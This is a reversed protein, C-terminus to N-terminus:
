FNYYPNQVLVKNRELEDKHIPLYWSLPNTLKTQLIRKQTSPVNRVMINILETKRKYNNRRGMRMLDFWRKGEFALERAREELIADEFGTATYTLGSPPALLSRKKRVEMLATLAEDYRGLQSLAEAKMLFIDSYRYLIWNASRLIVNPRATQNDGVLGVYKWIIYDDESEMKISKGLGRDLDRKDEDESDFLEIAYDSPDYNYSNYNTLDYTGNTQQLGDDFQFEFIGELSNGPYYITFWENGPVIRYKNTAEINQCYTICSEYDFRWLSIDALLADIAPKTARGKNEAISLYGDVTAWKRAEILDATIQDLVEDETAKKVYVNTADTLTPTIILPVEKFIRVLYFYSLSRLFYAESMYGYLIYDTFTKDKDQVSPAFHLVENCYNIVKYFDAWKCMGNDPYISGEMIRREDASQNNDGLVLDGRIEGYKFLNEDMGAFQDYAGMIVAEVDEKTKWFEERILGQPPELTLWDSCSVQLIMVLFILSLKLYIKMTWIKKM